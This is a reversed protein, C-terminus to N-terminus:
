VLPSFLRLSLAPLNWPANLSSCAALHSCDLGHVITSQLVPLNRIWLRLLHIPKLALNVNRGAKISLPHISSPELCPSALIWESFPIYSGLGVRSLHPLLPALRRFWLGTKNCLKQDTNSSIRKGLEVWAFVELGTGWSLSAVSKVSPSVQRTSFSEQAGVWRKKRRKKKYGLIYQPSEAELNKSLIAKM